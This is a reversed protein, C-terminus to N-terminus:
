RHQIRKFGKQKFTNRSMSSVHYHEMGEWLYGCHYVHNNQKGSGKWKIRKLYARAEGQSFFPIKGTCGFKKKM